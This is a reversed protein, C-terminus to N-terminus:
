RNESFLFLKKRKERRGGGVKGYKKIKSHARVNHVLVVAHALGVLFQVCQAIQAIRVFTAVSIVILPATAVFLSLFKLCCGDIPLCYLSLHLTACWNLFYYLFEWKREYMKYPLWQLQVEKKTKIRIPGFGPAPLSLRM